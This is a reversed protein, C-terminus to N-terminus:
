LYCKAKTKKKKRKKEEKTIAKKIKKNNMDSKKKADYTKNFMTIYQNKTRYYRLKNNYVITNLKKLLVTEIKMGNRDFWGIYYAIGAAIAYVWLNEIVDLRTILWTGFAIIVATGVAIMQRMTLGKAIKNAQQIEKEIPLEIM